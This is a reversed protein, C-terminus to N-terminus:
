EPISPIEPNKMYKLYKLIIEDAEQWTIDRSFEAELLPDINIANFIKELTSSLKDGDSQNCSELYMMCKNSQFSFHLIVWDIDFDIFDDISVDFEYREYDEPGGWQGVKLETLSPEFQALTGNHLLETIFPSAESIKLGLNKYRAIWGALNRLGTEDDTNIRNKPVSPIEYNNTEM